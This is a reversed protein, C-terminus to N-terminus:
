YLLLWIKTEIYYFLDFWYWWCETTSHSALPLALVITRVMLLISRFAVSYIWQVLFHKAFCTGFVEIEDTIHTCYIHHGNRHFPNSFMHFIFQILQICFLITLPFTVNELWKWRLWVLEGCVSLTHSSVSCLCVSFEMEIYIKPSNNATTWEFCELAYGFM